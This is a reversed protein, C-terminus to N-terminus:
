IFKESHTRKNDVCESAYPNRGKAECRLSSRNASHQYGDVIDAGSHLRTPPFSTSVECYASCIALVESVSHPHSSLRPPKRIQAAAATCVRHLGESVGPYPSQSLHWYGDSKLEGRHGESCYGTHLPPWTPISAETARVLRLELIEKSNVQEVILYRLSCEMEGPQHGGVPLSYMAQLSFSSLVM